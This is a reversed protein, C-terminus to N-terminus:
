DLDDPIQDLDRFSRPRRPPEPLLPEDGALHRDSSGTRVTQQAVPATAVPAPIVAASKSAAAPSTSASSASSASGAQPERRQSAAKASPAVRQPARRTTRGSAGGRKAPAAPKAADDSEGAQDAAQDSSARDTTPKARSRGGRRTKRPAKEEIVEDTVEESVRQVLSHSDEGADEDSQFQDSRNQPQDGAAPQQPPLDGDRPNQEVPQAVQRMQDEFLTASEAPTRKEYGDEDPGFAASQDSRMDADSYPREGQVPRDSQQPRGSDGRGGRGRRGRRRRRSSSPQGSDATQGNDRTDNDRTDNDRTNDDRTDNDPASNDRAANDSARNDRVANDSASNDRVANDPASNDRMANDSASNERVANDPADEDRADHDPARNDRGAPNRESSDRTYIDRHRNGRAANDRESRDRASGDRQSNQSGGGQRSSQQPQRQGPQQRPAQQQQRPRENQPQVPRSDSQQPQVPRSDSQQEQDLEAEDDDMEMQIQSASIGPSMQRPVSGNRTSRRDNAGRQGRDGDRRGSQQQPRQPTPPSATPRQSDPALLGEIQVMGERDDILEMRMEDLGLSAEARVVIRRGSQHELDALQERKRNNLYFAVDPCVALEVRMVRQDNAAIALRRMVDLSMSEPTKVLGTGKCAPCDCYISRKLSPRMRQRTLEIIGFQSMRLVKTKARDSKFNDHLRQELERRHREFRLDIFDCIIVGGLDRLKLQRPIEDAAEMDTKFATTEADSHDRFKGSNVDIAVVAETSDIVLSGGGPLPVHRSYMGEIEKEIGYKHFLPVPQDYLEIKNKGRPMALKIFERTREAVQEDDVIIREIDASFVDRITRTVLDGETYLEMPTPGSTRKKEMAQWVRTLFTLDRQIETKSKSVGATRIIFGVDDIPKLSDLIQRLRRREVEDEIKRSIGMQGMGPMMVLFRGPISLYTSLTPGKTGIGEKIIQVVIEDGRRLCRQIPPRDRRSMKRGVAEQVDENAEGFYSPLLDSIHLFGNRGLGFDVFAAQISPEVNTVRGKYINGVHSTASTREMYLEDLKGSDLLAIRCEEGTSVNILMEKAM